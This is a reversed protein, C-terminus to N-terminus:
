LVEVSQAVGAGKLIEYWVSPRANFSALIVVMESIRMVITTTVLHYSMLSYPLPTVELLMVNM